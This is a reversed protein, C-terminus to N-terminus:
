QLLCPTPTVIFRLASTAPNNDSATAPQPPPPPPLLLAGAGTAPAGLGAGLGAGEGLGAGDGAGAPNDTTSVVGASPALATARVLAMDKVSLSAGAALV